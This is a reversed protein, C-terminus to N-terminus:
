ILDCRMADCRMEELSGDSVGTSFIQDNPMDLKAGRAQFCTTQHTNHPPQAAALGNEATGAPIM